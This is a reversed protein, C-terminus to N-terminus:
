AKKRKGIPWAKHGYDRAYFTNGKKTTFSAYFGLEANPQNHRKGRGPSDGKTSM